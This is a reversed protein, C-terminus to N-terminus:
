TLDTVFDVVLESLTSDQRCLILKGQDRIQIIAPEGENAVLIINATESVDLQDIQKAITHLYNM